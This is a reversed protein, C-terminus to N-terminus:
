MELALKVDNKNSRENDYCLYNKFMPGPIITYGQKIRFDFIKKPNKKILEETEQMYSKYASSILTKTQLRLLKLFNSKRFNLRREHSVPFTLLKQLSVVEIDISLALHYLDAPVLPQQDKNVETQLSINSM